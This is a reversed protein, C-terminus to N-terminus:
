SLLNQRLKDITKQGIGGKGETEVAAGTLTPEKHMMNSM